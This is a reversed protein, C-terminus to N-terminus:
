AARSVLKPPEAESAPAEVRRTLGMTLILVIVLPATYELSGNLAAFPALALLPLRSEARQILVSWILFFGALGVVGLQVGVEILDSHGVFTDGLQGREFEPISRLGTGIVWELPGAAAYSELAVEYIKGRGSGSAALSTFEGSQEAQHLRNAVVQDAGSLFLAALAVTVLIIASPRMRYAILTGIALVALGVLGSRVGTYVTGVVAIALLAAKSSFALQSAVVGAALGIGLLAVDHPSAFGVLEGSDYKTGVHGIGSAALGLHTLMAFSTSWLVGRRVASLGDRRTPSAIAVALMPFLLYKAAQIFQEGTGQHALSIIVPLFMLAIGLRLVFVQKTGDNKPAVLILLVLAALGTVFTTTKRPLLDGFIVLWPLVSTLMVASGLLGFRVVVAMAAILIALGAAIMPSLVTVAGVLLSSLLALGTPLVPMARWVDLSLSSRV